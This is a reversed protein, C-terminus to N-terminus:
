HKNMLAFYVNLSISSHIMYLPPPVEMYLSYLYTRHWLTHNKFWKPQFQTYIKVMKTQFRNLNKTSEPVPITHDSIPYPFKTWTKSFSKPKTQFLTLTEFLMGCVEVRIKWSYVGRGEGPYLPLRSTTYHYFFEPKSLIIGLISAVSFHRRVSLIIIYLFHGVIHVSFQLIIETKMTM